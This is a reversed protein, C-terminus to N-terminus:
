ATRRAQVGGMEEVVLGFAQPDIERLVRLGTTWAPGALVRAMLGRARDQDVAGALTILIQARRDPQEVAEVRCAIRDALAAAAEQGRSGAIAVALEAFAPLQEDPNTVRGLRQEALAIADTAVQQRGRGSKAPATSAARGRPASKAAAAPVGRDGPSPKAPAATVVRSGSAPKAPSASPMRDGDPPAEGRVASSGRNGPAPEAPAAPKEQDGESAAKVLIALARALHDATPVHRRAVLLAEDLEGSEALARVLAVYARAKQDTAEIGGVLRLGWSTEGRRVNAVALDALAAARDQGAPIRDILRRARGPRDLRLHVRVLSMLLRTQRAGAPVCVVLEEAEDVLQSALDFRGQDTAVGAMALLAQAQQDKSKIKRLLGKARRLSERAAVAEILRVWVQARRDAHPIRDAVAKARKLARAGNVSTSSRQITPTDTDTGVPAGTGASTDTGPSFADAGTSAPANTRSSQKRGSSASPDKLGASRDKPSPSTARDKLETAIATLAKLQTTKSLSLALHEARDADGQAALAEAVATLARERAEGSLASRALSVAMDPDQAAIRRVLDTVVRARVDAQPIARALTEAHAPDEVAEALAVLTRTTAAPEGTRARAEAEEALARARATDGRDLAAGAITVLAQVHRFRGDITRAADEARPDGCVAYARAVAIVARETQGRRGGSQTDKNETAEDRAAKDQAARDPPGDVPGGQTGSAPSIPAHIDSLLAEAEETLDVAWRVDGHAAIAEATISLARARFAPLPVFSVLDIANDPDGGRAIAAALTTLAQSREYPSPLSTALARARPLDGTRAIAEALLTLAPSRDGTIVEAMAEAKTLLDRALAPDGTAKAMTSLGRVRYDALPIRDVLREARASDGCLVAAQVLAALTWAQRRPDTVARVLEEARNLLRAARAPDAGDVGGSRDASSIPDRRALEGDPQRTAGVVRAIAALAWAQREPQVVTGALGEAAGLLGRAAMAHVVGALAWSRLDARAITRALTEGRDLEGADALAKAVAALAAARADPDPHSRALSEARTARGLRVWLTLLDDPVTPATNGVLDRAVALRALAPLDAHERAVQQAAAIERLVAAHGGPLRTMGERRAPDVAHEVLLDGTLLAGYSTLLYRPTDEPWGQSRYSSAWAHIRDRYLDLPALEAEATRLLTEHAYGYSDLTSDGGTAGSSGVDGAGGFAEGSIRTFLRSDLLSAVEFAPMGTLEALDRATLDGGAAALLGLLEANHHDRLWLNLENRAQIELHAAYPTRTLTRVRCRLLPHDVHLRPHPGPRPRSSVLVGVNVPPNLPLSRALGPDEDLGDVVLVLREGDDRCREAANELHRYLGGPTCPEDAIAALQEGVVQDFPDQRGLHHAAFYAAVRVGPPPDLVFASMLATKGSWPDGHWLLYPEDSECFARLEALERDRDRLGGAPAMSRVRAAYGGLDRGPPPNVSVPRGYGIQRRQEPTLDWDAPVATLHRPGELPYSLDVIGVLRDRVFVAAGSMGEWPTPEPEQWLERPPDDVTVDLTGTYLNSLPNIGGVLHFSDRRSNRFKFLPFGVAECPTRGSRREVLGYPTPEVEDDVDVRLAAIRGTEWLLRAPVLRAPVKREPDQPFRVHIAHHGEVVHGATLVVDTTVRYGAGRM